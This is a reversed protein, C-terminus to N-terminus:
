RSPINNKSKHVKKITASSAVNNQPKQQHSILSSKIQKLSHLDKSDLSQLSQPITQNVEQKKQINPISRGIMQDISIDFYDALAVTPASGLCKQKPNDDIFKDILERSFGINLSLKSSKIKQEQLKTKIFNRLNNAVDDINIDSFKYEEKTPPLYKTRGTVEDLSCQFYNAIKILSNLEPNNKIGHILPTITSYPMGSHEVFINRKLHKFKKALFKQIKKSIM